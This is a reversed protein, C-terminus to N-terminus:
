EEKAPTQKLLYCCFDINEQASPLLLKERPELIEKDDFFLGLVNQTKWSECVNQRRSGTSKADKAPFTKSVKMFWDAQFRLFLLTEKKSLSM